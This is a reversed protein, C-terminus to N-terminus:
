GLDHELRKASGVLMDQAWRENFGGLFGLGAYTALPATTSISLAPFLSGKLFVFIMYGLLGGVFPRIAGYYTLMRQGANFDLTLRSKSSTSSMRQLVSVLAGAAGAPFAVAYWAPVEQWYFVLAVVGALGAIVLAGRFMGRAYCTQASRQFADRLALEEEEMLGRLMTLKGQYHQSRVTRALKGDKPNEYDVTAAIISLLGLARAIFRGLDDAALRQHKGKKGKAQPGWWVKARDAIGDVRDAIVHAESWDFRIAEALIVYELHTSTRYVGIGCGELIAADTDPEQSRFRAYTQDFYDDGLERWPRAAKSRHSQWYRLRLVDTFDVKANADGLTRDLDRRKKEVNGTPVRRRRAFGRERQMRRILRRWV